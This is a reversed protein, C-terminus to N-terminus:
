TLSAQSNSSQLVSTVDSSETVQTKSILSFELHKFVQSHLYNWVAWVIDETTTPFLEFSIASDISAFFTIDENVVNVVSHYEIPFTRHLCATGLDMLSPRSATIRILETWQM